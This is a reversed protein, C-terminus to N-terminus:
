VLPLPDIVNTESFVAEPHRPQRKLHVKQVKRTRQSDAARVICTHSHPEMSVITYPGVFRNTFPGKRRIKTQEVFVTEGVKLPKRNLKDAQIKEVRRQAAPSYTGKESFPM